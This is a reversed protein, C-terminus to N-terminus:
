SISKPNLIKSDVGRYMENRIENMANKLSRIITTKGTLAEGIIM